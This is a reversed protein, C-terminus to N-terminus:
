RAPESFSPPASLKWSVSDVPVVAVALSGPGGYLYVSASLPQRYAFEVPLLRRLHAELRVAEEAGGGHGIGIWVRKAGKAAKVAYDGLEVVRDASGSYRGLSVAEGDVFGIVPKVNLAGAIWAKLFTARGGRVLNDLTAVTWVCLGRRALSELTPGAIAVPVGARAAEGAIMALLGTGIDTAMSDVVHIRVREMSVRESIAKAAATAAAHSQILKKSSLVALIEPDEKALRGFISVFESASTGVAYPFTKSAAIWADIDALTTPLRGDKQVGDVVVHLPAVEIGYHDVVAKTLNASPNVVVRM